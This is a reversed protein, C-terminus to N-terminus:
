GKIGQHVFNIHLAASIGEAAFSHLKDATNARNLTWGSDIEQLDFSLFHEGGKGLQVDYPCRVVTGTKGQYTEREGPTAENEGGRGTKDQM